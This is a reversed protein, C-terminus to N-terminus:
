RHPPHGFADQTRGRGFLHAVPCLLEMLLDFQM